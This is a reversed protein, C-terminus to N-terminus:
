RRAVVQEAAGPQMAAAEARELREVIARIEGASMPARLRRERAGARVFGDM